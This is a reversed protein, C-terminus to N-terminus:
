VFYSYIRYSKTICNLNVLKITLLKIQMFCVQLFDEEGSSSDECDSSNLTPYSSALFRPCRGQLSYPAPVGLSHCRSRFGTLPGVLLRHLSHTVESRVAGIDHDLAVCLSFSVLAEEYRGLGALAM